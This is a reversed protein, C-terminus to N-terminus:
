NIIRGPNGYDGKFQAINRVTIRLKESLYRGNM